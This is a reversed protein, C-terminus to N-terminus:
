VMKVDHRVIQGSAYAYKRIRIPQKRKAVFQQQSSDESSSAVGVEATDRQERSATALSAIAHWAICHRANHTQSQDLNFLALHRHAEPSALEVPSIRYSAIPASM